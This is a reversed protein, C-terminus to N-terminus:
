PKLRPKQWGQFAELRAKEEEYLSARAEELAVAAMNADLGHSKALRNWHLRVFVEVAATSLALTAVSVSMGLTAGILAVALLYVGVGGVSACAFVTALAVSVGLGVAVTRTVHRRRGEMEKAMDRAMERLREGGLAVTTASTSPLYAPELPSGPGGPPSGSTM